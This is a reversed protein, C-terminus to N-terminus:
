LNNLIFREEEGLIDYFIQVKAPVGKHNRVFMTFKNLSDASKVDVIVGSLLSTTVIHQNTNRSLLADMGWNRPTTTSWGRWNVKNLVRAHICKGVGLIKETKYYILNGKLDGQSCYVYIENVAILDVGKEMETIYSLLLDTSMIDDSGLVLVYDLKLTKLYSLGTDWKESAPRNAQVLHTVGYQACMKKDEIGSVCVVPFNVGVGDRLRKMSALFLNLIAPRRHNITLVGFTM